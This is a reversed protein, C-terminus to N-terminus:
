AKVRRVKERAEKEERGSRDGSRVVAIWTIACSKGKRTSREVEVNLLRSSAKSDTAARSGCTRGWRRRTM